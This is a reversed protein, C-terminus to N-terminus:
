ESLTFPQGCIECRIGSIDVPEGRRPALSGRLRIKRPPDCSCTLVVGNNSERSTKAQETPQWKALARDLADLESRYTSRTGRALTTANWGSGAGGVPDGHAVDLGLHEAILRYAKPHYFGGSPAPKDRKEELSHAAQHLLDTLIDSGSITPGDPGEPKLNLEVVPKLDWGVSICSSSRGPTLDFVVAPVRDDQAQIKAWTRDLANMVAQDEASVPLLMIRVGRIVTTVPSEAGLAAIGAQAIQLFVRNHHRSKSVLGKHALRSATEHVGQASREAPLRGTSFLEAVSFFGGDALARLVVTENPTVSNM